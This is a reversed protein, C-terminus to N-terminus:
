KQEVTVTQDEANLYVSGVKHWGNWSSVPTYLWVEANPDQKQLKEILEQVTM